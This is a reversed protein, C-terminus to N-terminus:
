EQVAQEDCEVEIVAGVVTAAAFSAPDLGQLERNGQSLAKAVSERSTFWITPEGEAPRYEGRAVAMTRAKMEDYDAIGIKLTKLTKM